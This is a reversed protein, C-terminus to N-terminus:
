SMDSPSPRPSLAGLTQSKLVRLSVHGSLGGGFARSTQEMNKNKKFQGIEYRWNKSCSM